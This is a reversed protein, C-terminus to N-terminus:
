EDDDYVREMTDDANVVYTQFYFVATEIPPQGPLLSERLENEEPWMEVYFLVPKDDAAAAAATITICSTEVIESFNRRAESKFVNTEKESAESWRRAIAHLTTM